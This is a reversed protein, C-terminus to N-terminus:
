KLQGKITEILETPTINAKVIFKDPKVGELNETVSSEQNSLIFVPIDKTAETKKLNKLLDVGNVDPLILDLLVLDPKGEEGTEIGKIKRLMDQGNTISVVDFEAKKMLTEYIDVIAPDDEVLFIKKAPM